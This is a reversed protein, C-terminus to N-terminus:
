RGVTVGALLVWTSDNVPVVEEDEARDRMLMAGRGRPQHRSTGAVLKFALSLHEMLISPNM